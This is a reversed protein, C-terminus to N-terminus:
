GSASSQAISVRHQEALLESALEMLEEFDLVGLERGATVASIRRLAAGLHQQTRLPSDPEGELFRSLAAVLADQVVDSGFVSNRSVILTTLREWYGKNLRVWYRVASKPAPNSHGLVRTVLRERWWARALPCDVYVSRNGRAEPLGSLNRIITRVCDDVPKPDGQALVYDIRQAGTAATGGAGNGALYHSEMRGHEIHRITVAAWLTARCAVRPTLESWVAYLEEEVDAPPDKYSEETFDEGYVSVTKGGTVPAERGVFDLFVDSARAAALFQRQRESGKERVLDKRLREYASGDVQAYGDEIM